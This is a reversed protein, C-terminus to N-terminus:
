GGGTAQTLTQYATEFSSEFHVVLYYCIIAGMRFYLHTLHVAQTPM